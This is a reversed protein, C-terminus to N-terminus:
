EVPFTSYISKTSRFKDQETNSTVLISERSLLYSFEKRRTTRWVINFLTVHCGWSSFQDLNHRGMVALFSVLACRMWAWFYKLQYEDLSSIMTEQLFVIENNDSAQLAHYIQAIM